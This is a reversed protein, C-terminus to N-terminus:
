KDIFFLIKLIKEVRERSEECLEDDDWLFLIFKVKQKFYIKKRRKKDDDDDIWATHLTFSIFLIFSHMKTKKKQKKWKPKCDLTGKKM